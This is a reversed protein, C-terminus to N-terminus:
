ASAAAAKFEIRACTGPGELPDLMEVCAGHLQTIEHVIALGLGCGEQSGGHGRYFREFVRARETSPIGLGNDEVELFPHGELEGCRVTVRGGKPAHNLANDILNSLAEKLMWGVGTITVPQTEFGLDIDMEIARDLFTSALSEAIEDLQVPGMIQGLHTANDSRALVLLQNVLHTIRATGEEIRELNHRQAESAPAMTLLDLQTQLGTLPTRLQHAADALFRKQKESSESLLFFLRNLAAVIPLVEEPVTDTTLLSLDQPSRLEIEQRLHDLPRLSIRIGFYVILLTAAILLLKPVVMDLMTSESDQERRNTTEAVYIDLTPSGADGVVHHRVERISQNKYTADVFTNGDDDIDEVDMPPRPLDANGAIVRRQEDVVAFYIRDIKGSRLVEVAQTSLDLFVHGDASHLHTAIDLAADAIVSDFAESARNHAIQYDSGISILLLVLLPGFLWTLLRRQIGSAAWSRTKALFM